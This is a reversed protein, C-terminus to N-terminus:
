KTLLRRLASGILLGVRYGGRGPLGATIDPLNRTRRLFLWYVLWALALSVPIQLSVSDWVADEVRTGVDVLRLAHESAVMTSLPFVAFWAVTWAIKELGSIKHSLVIARLPWVIIVLVPILLIAGGGM